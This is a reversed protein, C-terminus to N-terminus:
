TGTLRLNILWTSMAGCLFFVVLSGAAYLQFRRVLSEQPIASVIFPRRKDRTRGLMHVPTETKRESHQSMVQKLAAERVAQWEQMDIEGDRNTDFKELMAQSDQKWQKLLERVDSSPDYVDGAGGVTNFLGIAYLHEAPHLREETYRYRGGSLVSGSKPGRAPQESSGYWVDKEACTVRAGDPDIVCEGTDDVLLFLEDSRGNRITSWNTNKGSRRKEEVKFSFWTCTIGTLPAIIPPGELLRGVGNLEVYGQAASRIKSTPMDEMIRKRMFFYFAAVFGGIASGAMFLVLLWFDDAPSNRAWEVLSTM